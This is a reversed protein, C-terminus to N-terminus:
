RSAEGEALAISTKTPFFREIPVGLTISLRLIEAATFPVRGNLRQNVAQRSRDLVEAVATQDCRKEAIVGRVKDAILTVEDTVSLM